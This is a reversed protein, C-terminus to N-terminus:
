RLTWLAPYDGKRYANCALPLGYWSPHHPNLQMASEVQACGEDWDGSYAIMIGIWGMASGNMPNLEAARQAEVRCAAFDKQFFLVSALTNHAIHNSPAADVSRRAAALARGLPDPQLNFGQAHEQLYINSLAAWAGSHNPARRVAIELINRVQAHEEPTFREYYGFARIVAEHPTLEEPAKSRLIESMSHPLVGYGDAVTSVIRPVLDDQLEFISEPAFEREYNKAWLQVGSLTDAVRVAVRLKTGAHRLSGELVYRAGLEKGVTRLDTTQNAYKQTSGRAIM